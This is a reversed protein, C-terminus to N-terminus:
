NKPRKYVVKGSGKKSSLEKVDGNKTFVFKKVTNKVDEQASDPSSKEEFEQTESIEESIESIEATESKEAMDASEEAKAKDAATTTYGKYVTNETDAISKESPEEQPMGEQELQHVLENEADTQVIRKPMVSIANDFAFFGFFGFGANFFLQPLVAQGDVAMAIIDAINMVGCMVFAIIGTIYLLMGSYVSPAFVNKMVMLLFLGAAMYSLANKIFVINHITSVNFIIVDLCLGAIFVVILVVTAINVANVSPKLEFIGMLVLAIGGAIIFVSTIGDGASMVGYILFMAGSALAIIKSSQSFFPKVKKNGGFILVACCITIVTFIVLIYPNFVIGKYIFFGTQPDTLKLIEYIRGALIGLSLLSLLVTLAITM